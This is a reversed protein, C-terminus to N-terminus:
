ERHTSIQEHAIIHTLFHTLSHTMIFSFVYSESAAAHERAKSDLGLQSSMCQLVASTVGFIGVVAGLDSTNDMDETRLLLAIIGAIVAFLVSPVFCMYYHYFAYYHSSLKHIFKFKQVHIWIRRIPRLKVVRTERAPSSSSSTNFTRQFSNIAEDVNDDNDIDNDIDRGENTMMVTRTPSSTSRTDRMSNKQLSTFLKSRPGNRHETKNMFQESDLDIKDRNQQPSVAKRVRNGESDVGLRQRQELTYVKKVYSGVQEEGAPLEDLGYKIKYYM